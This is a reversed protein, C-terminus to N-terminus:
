VLGIKELLKHIRPQLIKYGDLLPDANLYIALGERGDIAKEYALFAEDYRQLGILLNGQEFNTPYPLKRLSELIQEAKEQNGMLANIYGVTCSIIPRNGSLALANEASALAEELNNMYIYLDALAFHAEAYKPELELTQKLQQMAEQYKGNFCLTRGYGTNVSPSLPDLEIQQHQLRVLVLFLPLFGVLLEGPPVVTERLPHVLRVAALQQLDIQVRQGRRQIRM